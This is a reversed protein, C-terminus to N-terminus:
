NKLVDNIKEQWKEAWYSIYFDKRSQTGEIHEYLKKAPHIVCVDVDCVKGFVEARPWSITKSNSLAQLIIVHKDRSTNKKDNKFVVLRSSITHKNSLDAIDITAM